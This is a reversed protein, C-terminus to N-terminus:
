RIRGREEDGLVVLKRNSVVWQGAGLAAAAGFCGVSTILIFAITLRQPWTRRRSM